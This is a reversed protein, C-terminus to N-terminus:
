PVSERAAIWAIIMDRLLVGTDTWQLDVGRDRWQGARFDITVLRYQRDPDLSAYGAIPERQLVTEHMEILRRGSIETTVVTNGFPTANWVHRALLEGEPLIDRIGGRNMHALEAGTGDRMVTEILAKLEEGEIVSTARGIPVDVLDAARSEWEAILREVAPDPRVNAAVVPVVEWDYELIRRTGPDYRLRLRGVDRGYGSANVAIRGDIELAADWARHPHGQVIVAVQPLAELIVEAEGDSLHGLVVVMDAEAAAAKVVPALTAVLPASRWPGLSSSQLVDLLDETIAGVVAVRLEGVQRVVYPPVLTNGAADTLNASVTAFSSVEVYEPIREWGYDFEHNGLCHVDLGLLDAVEFIPVGEFLTSVPTGQVMDGAHLTLHAPAAERERELVTALYAFGGAGRSDPLLRAHLDNVHLITLEVGPEARTERGAGDACGALTLLLALALFRTRRPALRGVRGATGRLASRGYGRM